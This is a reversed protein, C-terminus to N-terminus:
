AVVLAVGLLLCFAPAGPVDAFFHRIPHGLDPNWRDVHASVSGDQHVLVHMSDRPVRERYQATVGAYPFAWRARDLLRTGYVISPPWEDVAAWGPALSLAVLSCPWHGPQLGSVCIM